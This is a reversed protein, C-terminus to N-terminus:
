RPQNKLARYASLTHVTAKRLSEANDPDNPNMEYEIEYYKKIADSGKEIVTIPVSGQFTTIYLVNNEAWAIGYHQHGLSANKAGSTKQFNYPIISMDQNTNLKGILVASLAFEFCNGRGALSDELFNGKAITSMGHLIFEIEDHIDTEVLGAIGTLSPAHNNRTMRGILENHIDMTSRAVVGNGERAVLRVAEALKPDALSHSYGEFFYDPGGLLGVYSPSKNIKITRSVAKAYLKEKGTLRPNHDLDLFQYAHIPLVKAKQMEQESVAQEM